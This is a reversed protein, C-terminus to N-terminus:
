AFDCLHQEDGVAGDLTVERADEAFQLEVRSGRKGGRQRFVSWDCSLGTEVGAIVAKRPSLSHPYVGTAATLASSGPKALTSQQFRHALEDCLPLRRSVVDLVLGTLPRNSRTSMPSPTRATM